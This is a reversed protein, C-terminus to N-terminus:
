REYHWVGGIKSCIIPVLIPGHQTRTIARPIGRGVVGWGWKPYFTTGKTVGLAM